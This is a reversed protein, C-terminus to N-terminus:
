DAPCFKAPIGNQREKQDQIHSIERQDTQARYFPLFSSLIEPRNYGFFTVQINRLLLKLQLSLSCFLFITFDYFFHFLMFPLPSSSASERKGRFRRNIGRKGERELKRLSSSSPFAKSVPWFLRM